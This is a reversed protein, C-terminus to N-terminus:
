RYENWSNLTSATGSSQVVYTAGPPVLANFSLNQAAGTAIASSAITGLGAMALSLVSGSAGSSAAIGMFIPRGTTNTYTTGIARSGLVNTYAQLPSGFAQAESMAQSAAVAAGITVPVTGTTISSGIIQTANALNGFTARNSADIYMISTALGGTTKAQYGINNAMVIAGNAALGGSFTVAATVTYGGGLLQGYNVAHAAQTATAVQLNGGTSSRIEWENGTSNWVIAVEGNVVIESGQLAARASGVIPFTGTGNINITSAGTNSHAAKFRLEMGDIFVAVAPTYNVVYANAAGTDAGVNFSGSQVQIAQASQTGLTAAPVNPSYQNLTTGDGILLTSGGSLTVAGGTPTKVSLTFNGTTANVFKYDKIFPSVTVVVNGTLAGTFFINEKASQLNNLTVNANTLAVSTIGRQLVPQWGNPAASNEPDNSNNAVTNLWNGQGDSSPVTAALPYGGVATAFASSYAYSGGAQEWQLAQSLAFLIGNMDEGFPPVGGAAVATRTLPPFGDNYSALGPTITIQSANPITNKVGNQAFALTLQAPASLPM